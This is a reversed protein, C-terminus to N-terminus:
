PHLVCLAPKGTGERSLPELGLRDRRLQGQTVGSLCMLQDREESTCKPESTFAQAYKFNSLERSLRMVYRWRNESKPNKKFDGRILGNM